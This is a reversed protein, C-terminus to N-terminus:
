GGKPGAPLAESVPRWDAPSAKPVDFVRITGKSNYEPLGRCCVVALRNGDPSWALDCATIGTPLRVLERVMGDRLRVSYVVSQARKHWRVWLFHGVRIAPGPMRAFLKATSRLARARLGFHLASFAIEGGDPSWSIGQGLPVPEMLLDYPATVLTQASGTGVDVVQVDFKSGKEGLLHALVALKGEDPSWRIAHISQARSYFRSYFHLRRQRGDPWQVFVEVGSSPPYGITEYAYLAAKSMSPSFVRTARNRDHKFCPKLCELKELSFRCPREGGGTPVPIAFLTDEGHGLAAHQPYVIAQMPHEKWGAPVAGLVEAVDGAGDTQAVRAWDGRLRDGYQIYRGDPSWILRTPNLGAPTAVCRGGPDRAPVWLTWAALAAFILLSGLLVIRVVRRRV